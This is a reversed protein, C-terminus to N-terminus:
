FEASRQSVNGFQSRPYDNHLRQHHLHGDEDRGSNVEDEDTWQQLIGKHM